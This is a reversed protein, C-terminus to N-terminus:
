FKEPFQEIIGTSIMDAMTLIEKRAKDYAIVDLDYDEDVRQMVMDSTLSLHEHMMKKMPTLEWNPNVDSLFECIEDANIYWRKNAEELMKVNKIKIAKFVEEGVMIHTFLLETLIEGNKEGCYPKIINGIDVQNQLLRDIAQKRGPLNDILCLAVNRTWFSHEEWVKRMNRNLEFASESIEIVKILPKDNYSCSVYSILIIFIAFIPNTIISKIKKM